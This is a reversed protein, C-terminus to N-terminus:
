ETTSEFLNNQGELIQLRQKAASAAKLTNFARAQIQGVYQKMERRGKEGDDPLFYGGSTSSLILAGFEREHSIAQRLARVTGYGTLQLLNETTISNEAGQRLIKEISLQHQGAEISNHIPSIVADDSNINEGKEREPAPVGPRSNEKKENPM